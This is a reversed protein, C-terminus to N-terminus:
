HSNFIISFNNAPMNIVTNIHFGYTNAVKTVEELDRVGWSQNHEKLSKDFILNSESTHVGKQKFPGYIILPSDRFLYKKSEKFLAKTCEFHSIHLMNICIISCLMSISTKSLPWPTKQVNLDIADPMKNNLGQYKIWSNISRRYALNPDSTQWITKPFMKQFSVAHEGSGSAIELVLGKPPLYEALVAGIAHKNRETAPFFLRNDLQSISKNLTAPKM